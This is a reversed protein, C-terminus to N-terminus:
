QSVPYACETTCTESVIIQYLEKLRPKVRDYIWRALVESTPNELGDIENLYRHDLQDIVAGAVEKMAAFDMVWGAPQVLPGRVVFTAKFSHGHLRFCKHTEPLHPLRHASEFTMTKRLEFTM